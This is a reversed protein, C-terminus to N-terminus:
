ISGFCPKIYWYCPHMRPLCQLYYLTCVTNTWSRMTNVVCTSTCQRPQVGFPTCQASHVTCKDANQRKWSCNAWRKRKMELCRHISQRGSCCVKLTSQNCNLMHTTICIGVNGEAAEQWGGAEILRQGMLLVFSLWGSM